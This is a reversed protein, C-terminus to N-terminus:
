QKALFSVKMAWATGPYEALLRRWTSLLLNSDGTAMKGAAGLWYLAAPAAFSEPWHDVVESLLQRGRDWEGKGIAVRACGYTTEALLEAPEFFGVNDHHKQGQEDLWILGPTWRAGYRRALEKNRDIQLRVPIVREHLFRAVEDNPYTVTDM